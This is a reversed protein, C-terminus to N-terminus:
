RGSAMEEGRAIAFAAATVVLMLLFVSGASFLAQGISQQVLRIDDIGVGSVRERLVFLGTAATPVFVAGLALVRVAIPLPRRTAEARPPTRRYWRVAWFALVALGALSSGHQLLTYTEPTYGDFVPVPTTLVPFLEVGAGSSHTFSDWVVHTAAGVAVSAAIAAVLRPSLHPRADPHDLRRLVSAPLLDLVFGRVLVAYVVWLAIGAPLDFWLLGAASHSEPGDIGLPVFYPLDPVVSGAVLASASGLGRLPARFPLAAAPHALTFPMPREAM